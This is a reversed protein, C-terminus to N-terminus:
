KTPWATLRVEGTESSDRPGVEGQERVDELELATEKIGERVLFNTSCFLSKKKKDLKSAKLPVETYTKTARTM